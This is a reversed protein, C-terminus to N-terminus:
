TLQTFFSHHTERRMASTIWLVAIGFFCVILALIISDLPISELLGLAINTLNSFAIDPDSWFLKLMAWFSSEKIQSALVPWCMFIYALSFITGAIAASFQAYLRRMRIAHIHALIKHLLDSPPELPPLHKFIQETQM